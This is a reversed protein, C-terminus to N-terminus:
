QIWFHALHRRLVSGNDMCISFDFVMTIKDTSVVFHSLYFSFESLFHTYAAMLPRYMVVILVAKESKWNHHSISVTLSEFSSWSAKPKPKVHLSCHYIAAVGGGRGTSRPIDYCIHSSPTAENFTVYQEDPLWTEM